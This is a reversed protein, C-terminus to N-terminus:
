RMADCRLDRNEWPGKTDVACTETPAHQSLYLRAEHHPMQWHAALYLRICISPLGLLFTHEAPETTVWDKEQNRHDDRIM